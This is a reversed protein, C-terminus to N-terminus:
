DGPDDDDMDKDDTSEESIDLEDRKNIDQLLFPEAEFENEDTMMANLDDTDENSILPEETAHAIVYEVDHEDDLDDDMLVEITNNGDYTTNVEVNKSDSNNKLRNSSRTRLSTGSGFTENHDKIQVVNKTDHQNRAIRQEYEIIEDAKQKQELRKQLDNILKISETYDDEFEDESDDFVRSM